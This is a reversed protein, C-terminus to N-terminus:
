PGAQAVLVRQAVKIFAAGKHNEILKFAPTAALTLMCAHHVSLVLEQLEQDDELAVVKLGIAQCKEIPLHRGHSLTLSHDALENVIANAKAVADPDGVFMGSVLWDKTM